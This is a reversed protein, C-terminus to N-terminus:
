PLIASVQQVVDPIAPPSLSDGARVHGTSACRIVHVMEAVLDIEVGRARPRRHLAAAEHSSITGCRPTQGTGPGSPIM